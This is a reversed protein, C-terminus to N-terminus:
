HDESVGFKDDFVIVEEDRKLVIKTLIYLLIVHLTYIYRYRITAGIDKGEVLELFINDPM